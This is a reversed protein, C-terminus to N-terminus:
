RRTRLCELLAERSIPGERLLTLNSGSLDIVTSSVGLTAKGGDVVIDIREGLKRAVEEATTAPPEGTKNASTGVLLGSCLGLLSLCAPHKPSRVGITGRPALISTIIPKAKLVMTLPGPWYYNALTIAKNSFDAIREGEERNRVLVPLPDAGREKAEILREIARRNFPNCGLGYVTDTPYSIIGGESVVNSAVILGEMDAKVIRVM